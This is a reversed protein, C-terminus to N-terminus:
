RYTINENKSIVRTMEADKKEPNNDTVVKMIQRKVDNNQVMQNFKEYNMNTIGLEVQKGAKKAIIKYEKNSVLNVCAKNSDFSDERKSKNM